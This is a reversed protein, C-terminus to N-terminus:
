ERFGSFYKSPINNSFIRSELEDDTLVTESGPGKQLIEEHGIDHEHHLLDHEIDEKHIIKVEQDSDKHFENWHHLEYEQEFNSHHGVGVGLDPLKGGRKAFSLFEDKNIRTDDDVDLLSMILKVIRQGLVKDTAESNDHSGMGDGKGVVEERSFGYMSLIDAADLYGKLNRDHINFFTSADYEQIQHEEDMHWEEWTKGAPPKVPESKVNSNIDHDLSLIGSTLFAFIIVVLDYVKM